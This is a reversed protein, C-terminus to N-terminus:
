TNNNLEHRWSDLEKRKGLAILWAELQVDLTDDYDIMMHCFDEFEEYSSDLLGKMYATLEAVNKLRKDGIALLKQGSLLYAMTYYNMMQDRKNRNSVNHATELASAAAELRENKSKVKKLYNTLLRNGLISDWYAHNSKDNKWLRELMDRGLAPLSEYVQGMWYFGKLEPYIKYLLDWFIIDDKGATRTAEEEADMCYGAIEPNFKKFYAMLLGRYLQKKGDEWNSALATILSPIDKYEQGLFMYAPIAKEAAYGVGEGPIVQKKGKCWNLVETYTWRRNPNDKKNRNTIDLYTLASILEQLEQPMDKPFPIRQVVTLQAKEEDNMNKYPTYGCFLEYLTIGFSYYDSEELFLNRFTEPASYEPTMGTKTVLVTNGEEVVSSIGFDIISVSKKNDSLMINSPKLDKHIIGNQHLVKLAENICPIIMEKLESFTFKKGQLSGNRYYPLVEFPRNGHIGTDYLKAVFPSDISKLVALVEPKVARQRRYVKAVYETGNYKCIYLDAEGTSVSLPEVIEYKGALVAGASLKASTTAINPNIVTAQGVESNIVTANINPNLETKNSM